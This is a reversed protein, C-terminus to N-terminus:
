KVKFILIPLFVESNPPICLRPDKRHVLHEFHGLLGINHSVGQMKVESSKDKLLALMHDKSEEPSM